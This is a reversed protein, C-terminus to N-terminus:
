DVIRVREYEHAPGPHRRGIRDTCEEVDTLYKNALRPMQAVSQIKYMQTGLENSTAMFVVSPRASLMPLLYMDQLQAGSEDFRVILCVDAQTSQSFTIMWRPKGTGNTKARAARVLLIWDDNVSITNRTLDRQVHEGNRSLVSILDDILYGMNIKMTNHLNIYNCNKVTPLGAKRYANTMSGFRSVFGKWKPIDPTSEIRRTTIKGDRAYIRKLISLMAEDTMNRTRDRRRLIDTAANFQDIPVIPKFAQLCRVTTEPLDISPPRDFYGGGPHRITNGIYNENTLLRRILYHNWPKGDSWTSPNANLDEMIHKVLRRKVVFDHFIRRVITLESKPGPRIITRYGYGFDHCHQTHQLVCVEEGKSNVM